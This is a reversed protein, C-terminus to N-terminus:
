LYKELETIQEELYKIASCVAREKNKDIAMLHGPEDGFLHHPFITPTRVEWNGDNLHVLHISM